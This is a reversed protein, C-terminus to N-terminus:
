FGPRLSLQRLWGKGPRDLPRVSNIEAVAYGFVNIRAAAGVSKVFDREGSTFSPSSATDRAVGADAFLAV